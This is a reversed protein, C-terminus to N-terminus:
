QEQCVEDHTVMLHEPALMRPAAGDKGKNEGGRVGGIVPNQYCRQFGGEGPNGTKKQGEQEKCKLCLEKIMEVPLKIELSANMSDNLRQCRQLIRIKYRDV